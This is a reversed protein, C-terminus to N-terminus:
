RGCIKQRGIKITCDLSVRTAPEQRRPFHQPQPPINRRSHRTKAVMSCRTGYLRLRGMVVLAAVALLLTGPEPVVVVTMPVSLELNGPDNPDQLAGQYPNGDFEKFHVFINGSDTTPFTTPINGYAIGYTGLAQSNLPTSHPPITQPFTVFDLWFGLAPGFQTTGNYQKTCDVSNPDAGIECFNSSTPLLWFDTNNTITYYFDAEVGFLGKQMTVTGSPSLNLTAIPTAYAAGWCCLAMATCKMM